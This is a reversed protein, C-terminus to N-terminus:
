SFLIVEFWEFVQVSFVPRSLINHESFENSNVDADENESMSKHKKIILPPLFFGFEVYHITRAHKYIRTNQPKSVSYCLSDQHSSFIVLCVSFFHFSFFGRTKRRQNTHRLSTPPPQPFYIVRM